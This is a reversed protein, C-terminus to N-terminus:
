EYVPKTTAGDEGRPTKKKDKKKGKGKASVVKDKSIGERRAPQSVKNSAPSSEELSAERMLLEIFYEGEEGEILLDEPGPAWWSDEVAKAKGREGIPPHV